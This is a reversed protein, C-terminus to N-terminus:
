ATKSTKGSHAEEWADRIPELIERIEEFNGKRSIDQCYKYLAFLQDSLAYDFNLSSMLSTLIERLQKDDERYTAQIALDYLKIVLKVPTAEAVAQQQYKLHPNHM